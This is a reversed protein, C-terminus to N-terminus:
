VAKPCSDTCYGWGMGYGGNKTLCDAVSTACWLKHDAEGDQTCANYTKGEYNFPFKCEAKATAEFNESFGNSFNPWNM